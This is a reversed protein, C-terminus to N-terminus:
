LSFYGAEKASENSSNGEEKRSALENKAYGKSDTSVRTLALKVFLTKFTSGTTINEWM